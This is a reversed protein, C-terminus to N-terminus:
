LFLRNMLEFIHALHSRATVHHFAAAWVHGTSSKDEKKGTGASGRLSAGMRCRANKSDSNSYDGHKQESLGQPPHWQSAWGGLWSIKDDM